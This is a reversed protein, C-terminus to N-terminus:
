PNMKILVMELDYTDEGSGPFDGHTPHITPTFSEIFCSFEPSNGTDYLHDRCNHITEGAYYFGQLERMMDGHIATFRLTRRAGNFGDFQISPLSAGIVEIEQMRPQSVWYTDGGYRDPNRIFVYENANGYEFVWYVVAM